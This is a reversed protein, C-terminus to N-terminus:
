KNHANSVFLPLFIEFCIVEMNEYRGFFCVFYNQGISDLASNNCCKTQKKNSFLIPLNKQSKRVKLLKPSKMIEFRLLILYVVYDLKKTITM